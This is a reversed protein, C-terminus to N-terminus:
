KLPRALVQSFSDATVSERVIWKIPANEASAEGIMVVPLADFPGLRAVEKPSFVRVRAFAEGETPLLQKVAAAEPSDNAVLLLVRQPWTPEIVEPEPIPEINPEPEIETTLSDKIAPVLAGERTESRVPRVLEADSEREPPPELLHPAALAIAALSLGAITSKTLNM